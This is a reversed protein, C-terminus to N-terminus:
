NHGNDINETTNLSARFCGAFGALRNYSSLALYPSHDEPRPTSLFRHTKERLAHAAPFSRWVSALVTEWCEGLTLAYSLLRLM